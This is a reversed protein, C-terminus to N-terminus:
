STETNCIFDIEALIQKKEEDSLPLTDILMHNEKIDRCLVVHNELLKTKNTQSLSTLMTIPHLKAKEILDRLSEGDPYSWSIMRMGSCLAYTNAETTTKTNTVLWPEDYHNREKIDDFRAKTYLAVHIDSRIGPANHYKAEIMFTKNDKQAVVDIEHSVCRGSVIQRVQTNYGLKELIRAIFDEFPYGTPGLLMISEKLSYRTKSYPKPSQGLFEVIHHYIESSQMDEHLKEKVHLLVKQQLEQPIGARKISAILKEESFEEKDGNAKIIQSM